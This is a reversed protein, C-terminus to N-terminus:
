KSAVTYACKGTPTFSVPIEEKRPLSILELLTQLFVRKERTLTEVYQYGIDAGTCTIGVL